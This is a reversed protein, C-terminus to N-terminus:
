LTTTRSAPGPVCADLGIALASKAAQENSSNARQLMSEIAVQRGSAVADRLDPYLALTAQMQTLMRTFQSADAAPVELERLDGLQVRALRTLDGVYDLLQQRSQPAPLADVERYHTACVANAQKAFTDHAGGGSGGCGAALAVTALASARWAHSFRRRRPSAATASSRSSSRV